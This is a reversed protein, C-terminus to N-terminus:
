PQEVRLNDILRTTGLVAAVLVVFDKDGATPQALVPTRVELYQPRFGAAELRQMQEACLAAYDDRGARLGAAVAQLAAHIGPAQEREAPTLYQNRSSLALGDAARETPYGVVDAPMRLDAVMRKVIQLQQWDKEGFVAVDPQVSNFLIAVVTAVGTFFGPRFAGELEASLPSVTITTAPPFGNVYVEEVPPAYVLDVGQAELQRVDEPLSRPYRGFDENPGFQLPNVFVTVVVRDALSHAHRVLALHGAHLNGMTPVLAIREGRARWQSIQARLESALHVTNM